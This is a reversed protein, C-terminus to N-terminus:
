TFKSKKSHLTKTTLSYRPFLTWLRHWMATFFYVTKVFFFMYVCMSVCVYVCVCLQVRAQTVSTSEKAKREKERNLFVCGGICVREKGESEDGRERGSVNLPSKEEAMQPSALTRELIFEVSTSGDRSTWDITKDRFTRKCRFFKEWSFDSTNAFENM